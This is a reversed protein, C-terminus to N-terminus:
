LSFSTPRLVTFDSQKTYRENHMIGEHPAVRDHDKEWGELHPYRKFSLIQERPAFEKRESYVREYYVLLAEECPTM